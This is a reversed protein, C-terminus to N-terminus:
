STCANEFKGALEAQTPPPPLLGVGTIGGSSFDATMRGSNLTHTPAVPSALGWPLSTLISTWLTITMVTNFKSM